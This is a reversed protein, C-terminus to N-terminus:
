TLQQILRRHEVNDPHLYICNYDHEINEKLENLKSDNYTFQKWGKTRLWKDAGSHNAILVVPLHASLTQTAGQLVDLEYGQVHIKIFFPNLNFKDLTEIKCTEQVVNLLKPNFRWVTDENLWNAAREETFSSLGDYKFNRYYPVYLELLAEAKGLGLNYLNLNVDSKFLTQLKEFPQKAPEFAYVKTVKHYLRVADITQGQNAGVDVACKDNPVLHKLVEFEYEFPVQRMSRLYRQFFYKVQLLFGFRSQLDRTIKLILM